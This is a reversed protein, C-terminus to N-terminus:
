LNLLNLTKKNSKASTNPKSIKITKGRQKKTRKIPVIRVLPVDDDNDIM